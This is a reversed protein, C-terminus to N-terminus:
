TIVRCSKNSIIKSANQGGFGFANSLIHDVKHDEITEKLVNLNIELDLIAQVRAIYLRNLM